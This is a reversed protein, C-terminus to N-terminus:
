DEGALKMYISDEFRDIDLRATDMGSKVISEIIDGEHMIIGCDCSRVFTSLDHLATVVIGGCAVYAKIARRLDIAAVPDLWNLPEDLIVVPPTNLFALHITVRQRFGSSLMSILKPRIKQIGLAQAIPQFGSPDARNLSAVADVLEAVTLAEPLTDAPPAFGFALARAPDDRSYDVGAFAVTGDCIARRGALATLLTTKGSGNAGLVGAWCPGDIDWSVANVVKRGSRRVSVKNLVLSSM